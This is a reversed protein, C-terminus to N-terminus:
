GAEQKELQRPSDSPKVDQKAKETGNAALPVEHNSLDKGGSQKTRIDKRLTDVDAGTMDAVSQENEYINQGDDMEYINQSDDVICFGSEAGVSEPIPAKLTDMKHDTSHDLHIEKPRTAHVQSNQRVHIFGSDLQNDSRSSAFSSLMEERVGVYENPITKVNTAEDRSEDAHVKSPKVKLEDIVTYMDKTLLYDGHHGSMSGGSVYASDASFKKCKTIVEKIHDIWTTRTQDRDCAFLLPKKHRKEFTIVFCYQEHNVNDQPLPAEFTSITYRKRADKSNKDHCITLYEKTLIGYCRDWHKRSLIAKKPIYLEGSCVVKEALINLLSKDKSSSAM